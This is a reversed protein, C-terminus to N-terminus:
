GQLHSWATGQSVAQTFIVCSKANNLRGSRADLEFGM